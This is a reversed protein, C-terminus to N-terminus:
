LVKNKHHFLVGALFSMVVAPLVAAMLPPIMATDGLQVAFHRLLYYLFLLGIAALIGLNGLKRPASIALPVGLLVLPLASAPVTLKEWFRVWLKPIIVEGKAHQQELWRWMGIFSLERPHFGAHEVQPRFFHQLQLRSIQTTNALKQNGSVTYISAENLTLASQGWQGSRAQVVQLTGPHTLDVLTTYGLHNGKFRSVYLLREMQQTSGFQKYTFNERTAPLNQQQL